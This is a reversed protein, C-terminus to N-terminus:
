RRACNWHNASQKRANEIARRLHEEAAVLNVGPKRLILDAAVRYVELSAGPTTREISTKLRKPWQPKPWGTTKSSL